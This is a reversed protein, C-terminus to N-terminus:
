VLSGSKMKIYLLAYYEFLVITKNKKNKWLDILYIIIIIIPMTVSIIM